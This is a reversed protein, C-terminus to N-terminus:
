FVSIKRTKTEVEEGLYPLAQQTTSVLCNYLSNIFYLDLEQSTAQYESYHYGISPLALKGDSIPYSEFESKPFLSLIPHGHPFSLHFLIVLNM